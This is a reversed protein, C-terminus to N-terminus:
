AFFNRIEKKDANGGYVVVPRTDHLLQAQVLGGIKDFIGDSLTIHLGGEEDLSLRKRRVITIELWGLITIKPSQNQIGLGIYSARSFGYSWSSEADEESSPTPSPFPDKVIGRPLKRRCNRLLEFKKRNRKKKLPRGLLSFWAVEPRYVPLFVHDYVWKTRLRPSWPFPRGSLAM